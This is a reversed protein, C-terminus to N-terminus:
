RLKCGLNTLKWSQSPKNVIACAQLNVFGSEQM